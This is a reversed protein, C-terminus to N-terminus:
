SGSWLEVFSNLKRLVNLFQYHLANLSGTCTCMYVRQVTISANKNHGEWKLLPAAWVDCTAQVYRYTYYLPPATIGHENTHHIMHRRQKTPLDYPHSPPLSPIYQAYTSASLSRPMLVDLLACSCRWKRHYLVLPSHAKCTYKWYASQTYAYAHVHVYVTTQCYFQASM